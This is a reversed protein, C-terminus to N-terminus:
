AVVGSGFGTPAALTLARLGVGNEVNKKQPHSRDGLILFRSPWFALFNEV